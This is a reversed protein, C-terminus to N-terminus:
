EDEQPPPVLSLHHYWWGGPATFLEGVLFWGGHTYLATLLDAPAIGAWVDLVSM